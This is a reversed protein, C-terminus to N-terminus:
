SITQDQASAGQLRKKKLKLSNIFARRQAEKVEVDSADAPQDETDKTYLMQHEEHLYKVSQCEPRIGGGWMTDERFHGLGIGNCRSWEEQDSEFSWGSSGRNQEEMEETIVKKDEQALLKRAISGECLRDKGRSPSSSLVLEECDKTPKVEGINCAEIPGGGLVVQQEMKQEVRKLERNRMDDPVARQTPEMRGLAEGLNKEYPRASAVKGEKVTDEDTSECFMLPNVFLTLGEELQSSGSLLLQNNSVPSLTGMTDMINLVEEQGDLQLEDETKEINVELHPRSGGLFPVGSGHVANVPMGAANSKGSAPGKSVRLGQEGERGHVAGPASIDQSGRRSRRYVSRLAATAIERRTQIKGDSTSEAIDPSKARRQLKSFGMLPSLLLSQVCFESIKAM